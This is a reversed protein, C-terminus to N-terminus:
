NFIGLSFPLTRQKKLNIDGTLYRAPNFRFPEEFVEPDYLVSSINLMLDSGGALM